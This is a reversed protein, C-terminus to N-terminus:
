TARGASRCCCIRYMTIYAADGAEGQLGKLMPNVLRRIKVVDGVRLGMFRAIPDTELIAPLDSLKFATALHKYEPSEVDLKEHRPVLVSTTPDFLLEDAVFVEIRVKLRLRALRIAAQNTLGNCVIVIHESKNEALEKIEGLSLRKDEFFIEVIARGDREKWTNGELCVYNRKEMMARCTEVVREDRVTLM